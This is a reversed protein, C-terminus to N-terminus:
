CLAQGTSAFLQTFYYRGNAIGVGIACLNSSSVLNRRHGPSTIWGAVAQEAPHAMGANWALNEAASRLFFPFRNVRDGFGEHSFPMTGEAMQQAHERAIHYVADNWRLPPLKHEGRFLNTKDLCLLGLYKADRYKAEIGSMTSANGLGHLYEEAYRPSSGIADRYRMEEIDKLTFHKKLRSSSSPSSASPTTKITSPPQEHVASSTSWSFWTNWWAESEGTGAAHGQSPRRELSSPHANTQDRRPSAYPPPRVIVGGGRQYSSASIANKGQIRQEHISAICERTLHGKADKIRPAESLGHEPEEEREEEGEKGPLTPVLDDLLSYLASVNKAEARSSLPSFPLRLCKEDVFPPKTRIVMAREFGVFELLDVARPVSLLPKLNVNNFRLTRVKEDDPRHVLNKLVKHMMRLTGRSSEEYVAYVLTAMRVRMREALTGLPIKWTKEDQHREVYLAIDEVSDCSDFNLAKEVAVIGFLAAAQAVFPVDLPVNPKSLPLNRCLVDCAEEITLYRSEPNDSVEGQPPRVLSAAAASGEPDM